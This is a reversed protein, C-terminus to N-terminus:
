RSKGGQIEDTKRNDTKGLVEWIIVTLNAVIAAINVPLTGIYPNKINLAVGLANLGLSVVNFMLAGYNLNDKEHNIVEYSKQSM